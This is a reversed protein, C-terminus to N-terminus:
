KSGEARPHISLFLADLKGRRIDSKIADIRRAQEPSLAGRSPTLEQAGERMGFVYQKGEWRKRLAPKAGELLLIQNHQVVSALITRPALRQQTSAWTIAKVGAREAVLLAPAILFWGIRFRRILDAM